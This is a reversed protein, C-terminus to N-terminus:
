LKQFFYSLLPVPFKLLGWINSMYQVSLIKHIFHTIEGRGKKKPKLTNNFPFDKSMSGPMSGIFMLPISSPSFLNISGIELFSIIRIAYLSGFVSYLFM